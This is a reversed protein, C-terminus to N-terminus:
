QRQSGDHRIASSYGELIGLSGDGIPADADPPDIEEVGKALLEHIQAKRSPHVLLRSHLFWKVAADFSQRQFDAPLSDTHTRAPAAIPEVALKPTRGEPSLRALITTWINAWDASPAYRATVFGSLKTTAILWRGDNLEFLLPSHKAPLGYVATDFGAVRAIGILENERADLPIFQCAHPSVIRLKPLADGFANSAIVGREWTATQLKPMEIAPLFAPYEVYLRLNKRKAADFFGANVPTRTEPYADALVLVAAGEAAAEIAAAPTAFRQVGGPNDRSILRFLDNRESGSIIWKPTEAARALPALILILLLPTLKM